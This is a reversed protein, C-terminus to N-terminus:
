FAPELCSLGTTLRAAPLRKCSLAELPFWAGSGSTRGSGRGQSVGEAAWPSAADGLSGVRGQSLPRLASAAASVTGCPLPGGM